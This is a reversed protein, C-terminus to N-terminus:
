LQVSPNVVLPIVNVLQLGISGPQQTLSILFKIKLGSIIIGVNSFQKFAFEFGKTYNAVQNSTVGDLFSIMM